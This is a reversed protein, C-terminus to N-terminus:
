LDLKALLGNAINLEKQRAEVSMHIGLLDHGVNYIHSRCLFDILEIEHQTVTLTKMISDKLFVVILLTTLYSSM